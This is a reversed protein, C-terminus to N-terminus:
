NIIFNKEDRKNDEIVCVTKNYARFLPRVWSDKEVVDFDACKAWSFKNGELAVQCYDGGISIITGERHKPLVIFKTKGNIIYDKDLEVEIGEGM